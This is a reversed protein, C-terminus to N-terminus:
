QNILPRVTDYILEFEDDTIVAAMLAAFAWDGPLNDAGGQKSGVYMPSTNALAAIGSAVEYKYLVREMKWMLELKSSATFRWGFLGWLGGPVADTGTVIGGGAGTNIAIRLVGNANRRFLRWTYPVGNPSMCALGEDNGGGHDSDFYALMVFSADGAPRLNASYARSFYQTTGNLSAYHLGNYHEVGAAFPTAAVNTLTQGQASLDYVAGASDVSSCQWFGRVQPLLGLLASPPIRPKSRKILKAIEPDYNSM